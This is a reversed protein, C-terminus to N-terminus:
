EQDETAATVVSEMLDANFKIPLVVHLKSGSIVSWMGIGELTIESIFHEPKLVLSIPQLGNESSDGKEPCYEIPRSLADPKGIHDGPRYVFKFDYSAL